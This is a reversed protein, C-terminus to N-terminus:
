MGYTQAGRQQRKEKMINAKVKKPMTKLVAVYKRWM